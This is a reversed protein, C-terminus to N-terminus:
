DKFNIEKKAYDLYSELDVIRYKRDKIELNTEGDPTNLNPMEYLFWSVDDYYMGFLYSHALDLQNGLGNVYTNDFLSGLDEPLRDEWVRQERRIALFQTLFEKFEEFTLNM